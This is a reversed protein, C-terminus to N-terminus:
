LTTRKWIEDTHLWNGRKFTWCIRHPHGSEKDKYKKAYKGAAGTQFRSMFKNSAAREVENCRAMDAKMKLPKIANRAFIRRMTEAAESNRTPKTSAMFDFRYHGITKSRKAM